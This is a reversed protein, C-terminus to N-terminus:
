LGARRALGRVYSAQGAHQLDDSLISVLRVLLTVPPNWSTDVIRAFDAETLTQLYDITRTHVADHYGALLEADARVAAVDDVGQGYGTAESDFPLDFRDFWGGSTWVQEDGMLGGIHGDQVRTLHWILWAITNAEPDARYTLMEISPDELASHVVERIRGFTQTLLETSV